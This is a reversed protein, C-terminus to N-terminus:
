DEADLLSQLFLRVEQGVVPSVQCARQYAQAIAEIHPRLLAASAQLFTDDPRDDAQPCAQAILDHLTAEDIAISM